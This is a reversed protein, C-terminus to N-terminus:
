RYVTTLQRRTDDRRRLNRLIEMEYQAGTIGRHPKPEPPLGISQAVADLSLKELDPYAYWVISPIDIRHRDLDEILYDMMESLFSHEFTINWACLIGDRAFAAFRVAAEYSSVADKWEVPNYGNIELAKAQANKIDKPAVKLSFRDLERLAQNVKIAGIDIIEHVRPNLGTTEVDTIIIPREKFDM